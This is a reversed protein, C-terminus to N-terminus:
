KAIDSMREHILFSLGVEGLFCVNIGDCM